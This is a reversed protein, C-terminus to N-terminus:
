KKGNTERPTLHQLTLSRIGQVFSLILTPIHHAGKLITGGVAYILTNVVVACFRVKKVWDFLPTMSNKDINYKWLAPSSKFSEAVIFCIEDKIVLVDCIEM